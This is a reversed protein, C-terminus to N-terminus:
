KAPATAATAAATRVASGPGIKVQGATIVDDTPGVGEVIEVLGNRRAGLRVPQLSAKGDKILYVFQKDGMPWLAQEPLLLASKREALALTVRAFLGPRLVGEENKLTARLVVSRSNPDLQPDVASITGKFARGPFSDVNVSIAQGPQAKGLYSEPLRFDLKIPDIQTLTVLADGINVYAGPSVMRLGIVGAFPARIVTKALRTKASSLRAEDVALAAKKGDLENQAALKRAVLDGSREAERRSKAVNANWENVEAQVLSADLTFLPAGAAVSQGEEFHVKEILGAMEPKVVISEAARLSGIASASDSITDVTPHTAEVLTPPMGGPGGQALALSPTLALALLLSRTSTM